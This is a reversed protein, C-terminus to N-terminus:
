ARDAVGADAFTAMEALTGIAATLVPVALLGGTGEGLRLGIDLIPTLELRELAVRQAPETSRSGALWWNRAGPALEEAVVACAASAVGDLLVPTRRVAAQALFGTMAALDAGGACGLLAMPDGAVQRARRLADRVAVVKRMWGDDDIGTGRGTVAAAERGALAAVLVASPTTNGIGMDGPILLDAGGDIEEDAITRGAELAAQAQEQSLADERDIRGSGRRIKYTALGPATEADVSLDLVRVSAGVQRALVNVAAGGADFNAVMQATVAPPYASVNLGAVGHDGAFIVVRIRTFPRPPCAAQAGALWCSLEELRGLAGAPKTLLRQRAWAQAEAEADRLPVEIM